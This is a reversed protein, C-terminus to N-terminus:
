RYRKNVVFLGRGGDEKIGSMMINSDTPTIESTDLTKYLEWHGKDVFYDYNYVEFKQSDPTKQIRVAIITGDKNQAILVRTGDFTIDDIYNSYWKVFAIYDNYSKELYKHKVKAFQKQNM